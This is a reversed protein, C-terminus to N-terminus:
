NTNLECCFDMVMQFIPCVNAAPSIAIPLSRVGIPSLVIIAPSWLIPFWPGDIGSRRSSGKSSSDGDDIFARNVGHAKWLYTARLKRSMELLIFLDNVAWVWWARCGSETRMRPRVEVQSAAYFSYVNLTKWIECVGGGGNSIFVSSLGRTTFRKGQRVAGCTRKKWVKDICSCTKIFTVLQRWGIGIFNDM